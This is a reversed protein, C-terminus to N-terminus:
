NEGDGYDIGEHVLLFDYRVVMSINWSLFVSVPSNKLSRPSMFTRLPASSTEPMSATTRKWLSISKM